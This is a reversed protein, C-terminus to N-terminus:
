CEMFGLSAEVVMLQDVPQIGHAIRDASTMVTIVLHSLLKEPNQNTLFLVDLIPFLELQQLTLTGFSCLSSIFIVNYYGVLIPNFNNNKNDHNVSPIIYM